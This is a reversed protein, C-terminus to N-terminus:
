AAKRKRRGLAGLGILAAGLLTLSAPEPVPDVNVNDLEYWAPNERGNFQLVTSTSTATATFTELTYDFESTNVLSLLQDTGFYASFDNASNSSDHALEFSITYQQGPTTALTQSLSDDFSATAGFNASNPASFAGFNPGPGVFFDSGEAANTLTWDLPASGELPTNADFNGNLVLNAWAPAGSSFMIGVVLAAAMSLKLASTM